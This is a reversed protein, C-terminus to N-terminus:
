VNLEAVVVHSKLLGNLVVKFAVIVTLHDDLLFNIDFVPLLFNLVGVIPDFHSQLRQICFPNLSIVTFLLEFLLM